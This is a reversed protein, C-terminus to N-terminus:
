EVEPPPKANKAGPGKCNGLMTPEVTVTVAYAVASWLKLAVAINVTVAAMVTFIVWGRGLVMSVFAVAGTVATAVFSVVFAPMSQDTNQEPVRHPETKGACVALPCAAVKVAGDTGGEL